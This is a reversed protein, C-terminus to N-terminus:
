MTYLLRPMQLLTMGWLLKIQLVATLCEETKLFVWLDVIRIDNAMLCLFQDIVVSANTQIIYEAHGKIEATCKLTETFVKQSLIIINHVAPNSIRNHRSVNFLM